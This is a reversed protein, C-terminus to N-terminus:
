PPDRSPEVSPANVGLVLVGVGEIVLVMALRHDVCVAAAAGAGRCCCRRDGCCGQVHVCGAPGRSYVLLNNGAAAAVGGPLVGCGTLCSGSTPTSDGCVPAVGCVCCMGDYQCARQVQLVGVELPQQWLLVKLHPHGQGAWM